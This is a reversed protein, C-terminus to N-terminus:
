INQSFREAPCEYSAFYTFHGLLLIVQSPISGGVKRNCSSFLCIYMKQKYSSQPFVTCIMWVRVCESVYGCDVNYLLLRKNVVSTITIRYKNKDEKGWNGIHCKKKVLHEAKCYHLTCPFLSPM